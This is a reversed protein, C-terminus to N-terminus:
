RHQSRLSSAVSCTPACHSPSPSAFGIPGPRQFCCCKGDCDKLSWGKEILSLAVNNSCENMHEIYAYHGFVSLSQDVHVKFHQTSNNTNQNIPMRRATQGETCDCNKAKMRLLLRKPPSSPGRIHNNPKTKRACYVWLSQSHVLLLLILSSQASPDVKTPAPPHIDM